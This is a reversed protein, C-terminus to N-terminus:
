GRLSEPERLRVFRSHRLHGSTTVENFAIEAVVRPEVWKVNRIKERDMRHPGKKEPLNFFPCAETPHGKIAALVTSRTAPVFGIRVSDVFRMGGAERKGVLVEEVARASGIYGGIIFEDSQQTKHKQWTGPEEGPVYISDRRKAVVGEFGFQQVSALIASSTGDLVPSHKVLSDAPMSVKSELLDRRQSLPRKMIDKGDFVLLDFVYFVMRLPEKSRKQLLNFSHQGHEDLALLEGDLVCEKVRLARVAEVISPFRGNFNNGNRSFLHTEGNNNIAQLRYGDLKLEYQWDDGSPLQNVARCEMPQVFRLTRNQRQM